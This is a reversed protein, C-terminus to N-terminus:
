AQSRVLEIVAGNLAVAVGGDIPRHPLHIPPAAVAVRYGVFRPDAAAPGAEPLRQALRSPGLVTVEGVQLLDTAMTAPAAVVRELLNRWAHPEAAAMLVETAALAGNAHRQYEPRWFLAPAHHQCTFFAVRPMAPDTAFALSFSLRGTRGDRLTTDRGFDTPAWGGLPAFDRADARADRGQLALMSVGEGLALLDRNHGGFSFQGAPPAVVGDPALGLLEIFNGQLQAVHNHVGFPLQAQPTLTFGLAAYGDRAAALDHVAHVVHDILRPMAPMM